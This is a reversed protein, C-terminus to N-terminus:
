STSGGSNSVGAGPSPLPSSPDIETPRLPTAPNAALLMEGAIQRELMQAFAKANLLRSFYFGRAEDCGNEKFFELEAKTEVGEAAVRSNLTLAMTIIATM